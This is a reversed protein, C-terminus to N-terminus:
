YPLIWTHPMCVSIQKNADSLTIHRGRLQGTEVDFSAAAEVLDQREGGGRIFVNIRYRGPLLMLEDLNCIFRVGDGPRSEDDPGPEDSKFAAVQQGLEDLIVFGCSLNALMGNVDCVFRAPGGSKLLKSPSNGGDTIEVGV